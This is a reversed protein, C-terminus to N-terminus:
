EMYIITFILSFILNNQIKMTKLKNLSILMTILAPQNM